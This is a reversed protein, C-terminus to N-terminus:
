IQTTYSSYYFSSDISQHKVMFENLFELDSLANTKQLGFYAQKQKIFWKAKQNKKKKENYSKNIDSNM